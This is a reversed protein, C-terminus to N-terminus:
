AAVEQRPWATTTRVQGGAAVLRAAIHQSELWGPATAGGIIATTSAISRFARRREPAAAQGCPEPAM